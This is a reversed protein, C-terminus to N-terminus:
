RFGINLPSNCIGAMKPLTLCKLIAAMQFRNSINRVCEKGMKINRNSVTQHGKHMKLHVPEVWFTASEGNMFNTLKAHEAHSVEIIKPGYCAFIHM